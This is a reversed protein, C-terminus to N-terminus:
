IGNVYFILASFILVIGQFPIFNKNNNMKRLTYHIHFTISTILLGFLFGTIIDYLGFFRSYGNLVGAFAFTLLTLLISVLLIIAFLIHNKNKNMKKLSKYTWLAASFIFAGAFMGTIIDSLGFFRAAAVASGTAATCLPCHAIVIAPLLALVSLLWILVKKM